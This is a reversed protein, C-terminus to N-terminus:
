ARMKERSEVEARNKEARKQAVNMMEDGPVVIRILLGNQAMANKIKGWAGNQWQEAGEWLDMCAIGGISLRYTERKVKVEYKPAENGDMDVEGGNMATGEESVGVKVAEMPVGFCAWNDGKEKKGCQQFKIGFWLWEGHGVRKKLQEQKSEESFGGADAKVIGLKGIRPKHVFERWYTSENIVVSGKCLSGIGDLGVELHSLLMPHQAPAKVASTMDMMTLALIPTPLFEEHHCIANTFAGPMLLPSSSGKSETNERTEKSLAINQQENKPGACEEYSTERTDLAKPATEGSDAEQIAGSMNPTAEYKTNTIVTDQADLDIGTYPQDNIYQKTFDVEEPEAVVPEQSATITDQLELIHHDLFDLNETKRGMDVSFAECIRFSHRLRSTNPGILNKNLVPSPVIPTNFTKLVSQLRRHAQQVTPIRDRFDNYRAERTRKQEPRSM